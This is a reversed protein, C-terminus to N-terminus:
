TVLWPIGERVPFAAGCGGCHLASAEDSLQGSCNPCRLLNRVESWAPQSHRRLYRGYLALLAGFSSVNREAISGDADPELTAHEFLEDSVPHDEVEVNVSNEWLFSTFVGAKRRRWWVYRGIRLANQLSEFWEQMRPDQIPEQKREFVLTESRRSVMWRHFPFGALREWEASPTEIYGRRGVRCLEAVAAKPDEVHELVHSCIVFDFSATAFPLQQIDAVIFPRDRLVGTGHREAADSPYKDCLVNSRLNPSGGSGVDLVLDRAGIDLTRHISWQEYLTDTVWYLRNWITV